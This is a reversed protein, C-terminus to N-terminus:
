AQDHPVERVLAAVPCGVEHALDGNTYQRHSWCAICPELRVAAEAVALLADLDWVHIEAMHAIGRPLKLRARMQELRNM